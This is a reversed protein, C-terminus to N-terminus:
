VPTTPYLLRCDDDLTLTQTGPCTITPPTNDVVDVTFTCTASNGSNDTATLTVTVTQPGTYPTGIAPDQTVTPTDCNDEATADDTYDPLSAECDDDLTLTQTGPCTITPPTNDVVNVTFTCTASNGSDDTATLTVTVTQPGTYPTGIALDQTVTPTDCNDAATADDTYDPLSAECNDDLTLTQTSPCAIITPPTNDVVNVTFTCTASNGSDDTATLTVTVTQPGTHPTGIAPDQTVTPTDCNDAATADDTYDPLSAECNDDLTLTQTSPCAITPPTNDQKNVVFSCSATNGNGDDAVLVVTLTGAGSVMTGITPVQNVPVPSACNDSSSALSTYDSLTAECNDDLV